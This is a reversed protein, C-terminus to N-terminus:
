PLWTWVAPDGVVGDWAAGGATANGAQVPSAPPFPPRIAEMMEAPTPTGVGTILLREAAAIAKPNESAAIPVPGPSRGLADYVAPRTLTM